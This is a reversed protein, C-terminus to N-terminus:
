SKKEFHVWVSNGLDSLYILKIIAWFYRTAIYGGFLLQSVRKVLLNDIQEVRNAISFPEMRMMCYKLYIYHLINLLKEPEKMYKTIKWGFRNGLEIFTRKEWRGTHHPPMDMQAGYSELFECWRANPVAIFLHANQSTIENLHGFLDDFRDMHELVQFMCVIDFYRKYKDLNLERVDVPLCKIGMDNISHMGSISYETCLIDRKQFLSPTVRRAFEGQGAGIEWLKLNTEGERLIINKITKYTVAYEWKWSPYSSSGYILQYYPANGAVFPDAFRFGCNRCRRIECTDGKWLTEITNLLDYFREKESDKLVFFQAAEASSVELLLIVQNSKCVPCRKNM